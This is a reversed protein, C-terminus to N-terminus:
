QVALDQVQFAVLQAANKAPKLSGTFKRLSVPAKPFLVTGTQKITTYMLGVKDTFVSTSKGAQVCAMAYKDLDTVGKQLGDDKYKLTLSHVDVTM